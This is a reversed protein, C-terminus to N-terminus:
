ESSKISEIRRLIDDCDEIPIAEENKRSEFVEADPDVVPLIREIRHFEDIGIIVSKRNGKEDTIFEKVHIVSM